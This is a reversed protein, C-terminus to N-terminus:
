YPKGTTPNARSGQHAATVRQELEEFTANKLTVKETESQGALFGNFANWVGTSTDFANIKDATILSTYNRITNM